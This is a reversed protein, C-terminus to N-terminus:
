PLVSGKGSNPISGPVKRVWLSYMVEAGGLWSLTNLTTLSNFQKSAIPQIMFLCPRIQLGCKKM